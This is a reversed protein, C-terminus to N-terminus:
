LTQTIKYHQWSEKGCNMCKSNTTSGNQEAVFQTCLFTTATGFGGVGIPTGKTISQPCVNCKSTLPSYVCGCKPCEWGQQIKINSM